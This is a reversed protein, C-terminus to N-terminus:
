GFAGGQIRPKRRTSTKTREACLVQPRQTLADERMSLLSATQSQDRSEASGKSEPKTCEGVVGHRGAHEWKTGCLMSDM